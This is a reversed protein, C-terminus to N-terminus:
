NPFNIELQTIIDNRFVCRTHNTKFIDFCKNCNICKSTQNNKLKEIFDEEAIFPRCMSVFDIGKELANDIQKTNRFGGVLIIPISVEKKIKLAPELYYPTPQNFKLYDAGSLEIADLGDNELYKCVKIQDDLFNTCNPDKSTANIKATVIFNPNVVKKLEELIEHIIRYRNEVNGGYNDTRKNYFPDLFESLLYQHAIHLQVGDFGTEQLILTAKVYDKVCEKIDELSMPYSNDIGSPSQAINGSIKNARHGGYSIQGIIKSNYKHVQNTLTKFYEINNPNDICIHTLDARQNKNINLLSTIILGVGSKSLNEYVKIYDKTITGNLDGLHENTASRVIRNNLELNKIKAKKWVNIKEM